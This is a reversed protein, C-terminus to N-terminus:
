RIYSDNFYCSIFPLTKRDNVTNRGHFLFFRIKVLYLIRYFPLVEKISYKLKLNIVDTISLTLSHPRSLYISLYIFLDKLIFLYIWSKLDLAIITPPVQVEGM